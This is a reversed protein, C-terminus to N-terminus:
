RVYPITKSGWQREKGRWEMLYIGSESLRCVAHWGEGKITKEAMIRGTVDMVTVKFESMDPLFVYLTGDADVRHRLPEGRTIGSEVSTIPVCVTVNGGSGAVGGSSDIGGSFTSSSVLSVSGGTDIAGSDAVVSGCSGVNVGGSGDLKVVYINEDGAGVGFSKTYGAVAYGGDSTQIISYGYDYNGGGITRTWQINGSSDLKVVYVDENGAGFSETYGAVAYGGDTTQIISNGGDWNSGGITRTWQLNGSGDLKVVYVDANGAGFSTTSGAVAYGGDTTQIISNGGDIYVSGITRTWQLNGSGDLKVVYVDWFGAGFSSTYGAVAYGGDTTQIISFGEEEGSGGITRTWQINGSGNLKVVYVDENGAGFSTTSGAVAYGGDTTQIISYGYDDGSGGITRTWQINGSGDLKEVYVDANGAGFSNTEGAVAYGGDTTQIISYGGDIYVSGITRTWQLNGSGDLKVVYVDDGGAGFSATYGAVAYGGDTTQIISFAGELGSGGITIVQTHAPTLVGIWLIVGVFLPMFGMATLGKRAKMQKKKKKKMTKM